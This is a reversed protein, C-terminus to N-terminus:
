DLGSAASTTSLLCAFLDARQNSSVFFNRADVSHAVLGQCIEHPRMKHDGDGREMEVAQAAVTPALAGFRCGKLCGDPTELEVQALTPALCFRLGFGLRLGGWRGSLQEAARSVRSQKLSEAM